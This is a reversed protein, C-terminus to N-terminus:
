SGPTLGQTTAAKAGGCRCVKSLDLAARPMPKPDNPDLGLLAPLAGTAKLERVIDCGGVLEGEVFLQPITPWNSFQKIGERIEPNALVNVTLYDTLLEDLAKVVEASFGCTPRERTGKMFLVVPNSAIIQTIEQRLAENM